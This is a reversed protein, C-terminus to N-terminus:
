CGIVHVVRGDVVRDRQFLRESWPATTRLDFLVLWGESLGLSDLYRVVQEHAEEETETDRRLKTEIVIAQTKWEVFLDLAGKGLAYEREIRGGGNVIRQLFAMLMLHPGSERYSFGDAALHGDKRWFTQWATMIRAVDLAGDAGVYWVTREALSEQAAATLARPIVERYIPNAVEWSGEAKRLLGLGVVYQLDADVDNFPLRGGAVVPDLVRRVRPEQLRALLSDLHTRRDLIMAERAADVHAATISRTRDREQRDVTHDALANVLWPQGQSLFWVREIAADEFRQGTAATHQGLLEGVEPRTFAALTVLEATVNFPSTTGLWTVARRDEQSLTYDRIARMGVLVVSAPAAAEDRSIYLARLQTLFSVMAAGVLGDAEDILLVLPRKSSTCLATVYRVLATSPTALWEDVAAARPRALDPALLEVWRDFESLVSRVATPVDAIERAAQVDLLLARPGEGPEYHEVLWQLSTTKGTQRGAALVFWRAQAILEMPRGLRREPPLMYHRSPNCPGSTNFYRAPTM